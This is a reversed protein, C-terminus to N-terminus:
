HCAQETQCAVSCYINHGSHHKQMVMEMKLRKGVEKDIGNKSRFALRINWINYPDTALGIDHTFKAALAWTCFM